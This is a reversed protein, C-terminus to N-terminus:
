SAELRKKNTSSIVLSFTGGDILGIEIVYLASM